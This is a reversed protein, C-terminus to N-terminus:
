MDSCRQKIEVVTFRMARHKRERRDWFIAAAIGVAFGLLSVAIQLGGGLGYTLFYVLVFLIFPLIYVVMAATLVQKTDSEVLVIDGPAADLPNDATVVTDAMVVMKDCGACQSCDHACASQRQVAIEVRGDERLQKVTAVQTM